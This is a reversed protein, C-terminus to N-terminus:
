LLQLRRFMAAVQTINPRQVPDVARCRRRMEQRTAVAVAKAAFPLGLAAEFREGLLADLIDPIRWIDTKEDYAPQRADEFRRKDHAICM